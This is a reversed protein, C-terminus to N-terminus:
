PIIDETDTDESTTMGRLSAACDLINCLICLQISLDMQSAM